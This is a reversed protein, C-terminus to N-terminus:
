IFPVPTFGNRVFLAMSKLEKIKCDLLINLTKRSVIFWPSVFSYENKNVILKDVMQFDASLRPYPYEVNIPTADIVILHKKCYDRLLIDNAKRTYSTVVEAVYYGGGENKLSSNLRVSSKISCVQYSLGTVGGDIFAKKIRDSVLFRVGVRCGEYIKAIGYKGIVSASVSVNSAMSTGWPCTEHSCISDGVDYFVQMGWEVNKLDVFFYDYMDIENKEVEIHKVKSFSFKKALTDELCRIVETKNAEINLGVYNAGKPKSLLESKINEPLSDLIASISLLRVSEYPRPMKKEAFAHYNYYELM